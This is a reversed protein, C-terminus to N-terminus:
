FEHRMGVLYNTNKTKLGAATTSDGSLLMSYVRTRKSLSYKVQAGYYRNKGNLNSGQANTREQAYSVAFTAAGLPVAVGIDWGRDTGAGNQAATIANTTLLDTGAPVTAPTFTSTGPQGNALTSRAREYLGYAKAPGFDYQGGLTWNTVTGNTAATGGKANASEYALGVGLPGNAYQASFGWYRTAGTGATPNKNEGPAFMLSGTFGGLNPTAYLISNDVRGTDTHVGVVAASTVLTNRPGNNFAYNLPASTNYDQADYSAWISDLPTYQRGFTVTGWGGGLGAFAQRGFLRGNQQGFGTDISFGNEFQFLARNGGGLDETGKLGWRSGTEGKANGAALELGKNNDTTRVGGIKQTFVGLSFDARGYLTVTSQAFAAGVTALAALAVLTKKM